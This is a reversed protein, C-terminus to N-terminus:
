FRSYVSSGPCIVHKSLRIHGTSTYPYEKPFSPFKYRLTDRNTAVVRSNLRKKIIIVSDQVDGEKDTCDLTIIFTGNLPIYDGNISKVSITPKTLFKDKNCAIAVVVLVSLVLLSLKM